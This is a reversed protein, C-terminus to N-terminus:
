VCAGFIMHRTLYMPQKCTKGNRSYNGKDGEKQDEAVEQVTAKGNYMKNASACDNCQIKDESYIRQYLALLNIGM